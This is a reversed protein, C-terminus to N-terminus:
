IKQGIKKQKHPPALMYNALISLIASSRGDINFVLYRPRPGVSPMQNVEYFLADGPEADHSPMLYSKPYECKTLIILDDSIPRGVWVMKVHYNIM